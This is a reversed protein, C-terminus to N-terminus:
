QISKPDEPMIIKGEVDVIGGYIRIARKDRLIETLRTCLGLIDAKTYDGHLIIGCHVAIASIQMYIDKDTLATLVAMVDPHHEGVEIQLDILEQEFYHHHM